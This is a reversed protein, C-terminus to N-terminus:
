AELEYNEKDYEPIEIRITTVYGEEPHVVEITGDYSEIIDRVIKLGLGSGSLTDLDSAGHGAASSTTFFADFIREINESPIGCGNDSFNVFIMNSRRGCKIGIKGNNRQKKIAKKSNTYLNFLISAWESPHMPVTFLEYGHFEPPTLEINSRSIDISIVESFSNVADRIEIPELERLVNRSISKDFYSTYISFGKINDELRQTRRYCEEFAPNNKINKRLYEIDANCAPFYRKIEHVFEGIVLGLAALIRVMNLEEILIRKEEDQLALGKKLNELVDNLESKANKETIQDYGSIENKYIVSELKLVADDIKGKSNSSINRQGAKAKRGRIAAIRQVASVISRYVFDILEQFAINNILGERSATEEFYLGSEDNIEVFGFFNMNRHPALEARRSVSEDLRLWDDGKEGYPAVRFGNRYLRLGGERNAVDKIFTATSKPLLSSEYIFYYCHFHVGKIHEFKSETNDEQKGIEFIEQPYNLKDSELAWCAQGNDLVYGEIKALAHEYFAKSDSIIIKLEGNDKSFYYSKFGPDKIKTNSNNKKFDSLPFPQLLDSTYRYVRKIMAETWRDRLGNIVLTTGMDKEKPVIEVQTSVSFLEQDNEFKDWDICLKLAKNDDAIQTTITLGKGLCQAAFRGIGKRGARSRMFKQSKPYHVKQTSSLRMFGNILQEWDMGVGNDDIKLIGGNDSTDEFILNVETADADYANKVLEAVATEHRGVLEKGLRNIIGADVTFRVKSKDLQALRNSISLLVDNDPTDKSAEKVLEKQLNVKDM